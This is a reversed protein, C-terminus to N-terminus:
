GEMMKKRNELNQQYIKSVDEHSPMSLKIDEMEESDLVESAPYLKATGNKIEEVQKSLAGYNDSIENEDFSIFSMEYMIEGVVKAEGFEDIPKQFVESALWINWPTFELAYFSEDGEKVGCVDIYTDGGIPDTQQALLITMDSSDAPTMALLKDLMESYVEEDNRDDIKTLYELVKKRDCNKILEHLKM